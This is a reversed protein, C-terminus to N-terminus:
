MSVVHEPGFEFGTVSQSRSRNRAGARRKKIGNTKSEQLAIGPACKLDQVPRVLARVNLEADGRETREAADPSRGAHVGPHRSENFPDLPDRPWRLFLPLPQRGVTVSVM